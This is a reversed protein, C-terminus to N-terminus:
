FSELFFKKASKDQIVIGPEKGSVKEACLELGHFRSLRDQFDIFLGPKSIRGIL